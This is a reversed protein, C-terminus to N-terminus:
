AEGGLVSTLFLDELEPEIDRHSGPIGEMV